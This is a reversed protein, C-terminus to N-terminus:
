IEGREKDFKDHEDWWDALFRSDKDHSDYVVRELEDPTLSRIKECLERTLDSCSNGYFSYARVVKLLSQRTEIGMKKDFIIIAKATREAQKDTSSQKPEYCPM